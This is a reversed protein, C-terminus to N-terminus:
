PIAPRFANSSIACNWDIEEGYVGVVKPIVYVGSVGMSVAVADLSASGITKVSSEITVAVMAGSAIRFLGDRELYRYSAGTSAICKETIALITGDYTQGADALQCWGQLPEPGMNTPTGFTASALGSTHVPAYFIYQNPSWCFPQSAHAAGTLAFLAGIALLLRKM